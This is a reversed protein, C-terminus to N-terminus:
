ICVRNSLLCSNPSILLSDCVQESMIRAANKHLADCFERDEVEHALAMGALKRIAVERKEWADVDELTKAFQKIDKALNKDTYTVKKIEKTLAELTTSM